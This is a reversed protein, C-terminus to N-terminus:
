VFKLEYTVHVPKELEIIKRILPEYDRTQASARVVISFPRGGGPEEEIHFEMNGTAIGLFMALGPQTGRWQALYAADAVLARLRPEVLTPRSRAPPASEALRARDEEPSLLPGLGLWYALYPVFPSPSDFPALVRPFEELTTELQGHLHAMVDLLADLVGGSEAAEQFIGPLLARPEPRSM